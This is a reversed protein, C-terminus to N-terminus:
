RLFGLVGVLLSLGAVIVGAGVLDFVAGSRIMKTLPVKGSGYVIANPPTSVPLMFGYSAGFVAALAPLVPDVGAAIAIPIVVPVVIGVSATNSTTESILV